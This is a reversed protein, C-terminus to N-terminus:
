FLIISKTLKLINSDMFLYRDTEPFDKYKMYAMRKIANYIREIRRKVAIEIDAEMSKFDSKDQKLEDEGIYFLLM